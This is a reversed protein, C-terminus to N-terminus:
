RALRNRDLPYARSHSSSEAKGLEMAKWKDTLEMFWAEDWVALSLDILQDVAQPDDMIYESAQRLWHGRVAVRKGAIKENDSKVVYVTVIGQLLDVAEVFGHILEGESTRGQVWDSINVKM